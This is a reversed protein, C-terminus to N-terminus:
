LTGAPQQRESVLRLKTSVAARCDTADNRKEFIRNHRRDRRRDNPRDCKSYDLKKLVQSKLFFIVDFNPRNGSV